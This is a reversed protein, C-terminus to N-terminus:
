RDLDIDTQIYTYKYIYVDRFIHSTHNMNAVAMAEHDGNFEDPQIGTRRRLVRYRLHGKREM